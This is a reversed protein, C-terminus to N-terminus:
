AARQGLRKATMRRAKRKARLRIYRRLLRCAVRHEVEAHDWYSCRAQYDHMPHGEPLGFVMTEFLLPPGDGWQHDMSLFVTSVWVRGLITRRVVRLMGDGTKFTSQYWEAWEELSECPVVEHGVLKYKDTM